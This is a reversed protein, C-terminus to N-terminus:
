KKSNEKDDIIEQIEPSLFKKDVILGNVMVMNSFPNTEKMHTTSFEKDWYDLGFMDRIDKAKQSTSSKTTGFYRCIDEATAYPKFNKDFLFNISGIAYVIAAAWIELRGSLFPIKQKRSMKKILKGCLQKYDTDLYTECFGTTMEILKHIKEEIPVKNKMIFSDEKM